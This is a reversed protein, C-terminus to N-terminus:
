RFWLQKHSCLRYRCEPLIVMHHLRLPFGCLFGTSKGFFPNSLFIGQREFGSHSRFIKRKERLFMRGSKIAKAHFSFYIGIRASQVTCSKSDVFFRQLGSGSSHCPDRITKQFNSSKFIEHKANRTEHKANDKGIKTRKDKNM